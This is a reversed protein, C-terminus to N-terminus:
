FIILLRFFFLIRNGSRPLAKINNDIIGSFITWKTAQKQIYCRRRRDYGFGMFLDAASLQMELGVYYTETETIGNEAAVRGRRRGVRLIWNTKIRFRGSGDHDQLLYVRNDSIYIPVLIYYINYQLYFTSKGGGLRRRYTINYCWSM